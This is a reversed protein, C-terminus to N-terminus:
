RVFTFVYQGIKCNRCCNYIKNVNAFTGGGLEEGLTYIELFDQFICYAGRLKEMWMNLEARERAFYTITKKNSYFNIPIKKNNPGEKNVAEKFITVNNLPM